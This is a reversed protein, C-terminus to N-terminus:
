TLGKKPLRIRGANFLSARLYTLGIAAEKLHGAVLLSMLDRLVLWVRPLGTRLEMSMAFCNKTRSTKMTRTLSKECFNNRIESPLQAIVLSIYNQTKRLFDNIDYGHGVQGAHRRYQWCVETSFSAAKSKLAMRYYLFDDSHLAKPLGSDVFGDVASFVSKSLVVGPAMFELKGAVRDKIFAEPCFTTAPYAVRRLFSGESNIYDFPLFSLSHRAAQRKAITGMNPM